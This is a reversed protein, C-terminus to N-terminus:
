VTISPSVIARISATETDPGAVDEPCVWLYNIGVYDERALSDAYRGVAAPSGLHIGTYWGVPSLRNEMARFYLMVEQYDERALGWITDGSIM